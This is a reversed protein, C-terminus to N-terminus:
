EIEERALLKNMKRALKKWIRRSSAKNRKNKFYDRGGASTKLGYLKIDGVDPYEVDKNRPVGYPKM